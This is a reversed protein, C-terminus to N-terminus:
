QTDELDGERWVVQKASKSDDPWFRFTWSTEWHTPTVPTSSLLTSSYQRSPDAVGDSFGLEEASIQVGGTTDVSKESTSGCIEQRGGVKLMALNRRMPIMVPTMQLFSTQALSYRFSEASGRRVSTVARDM